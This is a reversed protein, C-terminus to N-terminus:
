GVFVVHGGIYDGTADNYVFYWLVGPVSFGDWYWGMYDGDSYTGSWVEDGSYLTEGDENEFMWYDYVRLSDSSNECYITVNVDIREDLGVWESGNCDAYWYATECRTCYNGSFNHGLAPSTVTQEKLVTGCVSCKSGESLGDSTCTASTASVTVPTHDTKPVTEQEELVKGCDKCHSGETLGTKACTAAVAKDKVPNHDTKPTEEQQVLVAECVECHSGETLGTQTCTAAVAKDKVPKHDKLPLEEPRDLVEGCVECHSGETHGAQSCTSEVARDTVEKHGLAPIEQQAVAIYSCYQCGKGETLGTETCTPPVESIPVVTHELVPTATQAKLVKGCDACHCGESRGGQTCTAPVASDIVVNHDLMAIEESQTNGCFCSRERLGEQTCTAKTLVTWEGYRHPHAFWFVAAGCLLLAVCICAILLGTKKKPPKGSTNAAPAGPVAGAAVAKEKKKNKGPAAPTVAPGPEAAPTVYTVVPKIYSVGPTAASAPNSAASSPAAPTVYTVAPTVPAAPAAPTVHTVAPTVPAVPAAPTVHTVAPTVPAVPAVPTVHTVAPTVPAAPAVPTVHTVAPTVSAAPAVPVAAAAGPTAMRLAEAFERMTQYRNEAFVALGKMLVQEQEWTLNVGLSSPRPLADAEIREIADVPRNGTLVTYMTAALSYVDTFPGQRGRRNYQEKPAYGHKLVVDLSRSVNGISYRAAGFDLLKVVGTNTIYINDPTVDRHIIGKAHVAELADAVPLIFKMTEDWSLRFNKQKAYAKMSIGDVYEMVFYSTNNEEFYSHVSAVNENGIFEAMTRAEVLFTNKGYEFYEGRDGTFPVVNTSGTRSAMSDPFFEKIAVKTGTQYDRALYTIGFGGQGLVRGLVYRGFLISGAPLAQPYEQRNKLTDYGCVPCIGAGGVGEQFCNGCM